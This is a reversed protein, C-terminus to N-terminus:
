KLNLFKTRTSCLFDISEQTFPNSRNEIILKVKQKISSPKHMAFEKVIENKLKSSGRLQYGDIGLLYRFTAVQCNLSKITTKGIITEALERYSHNIGKRGCRAIYYAIILEEKIWLRRKRPM